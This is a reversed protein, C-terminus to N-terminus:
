GRMFISDTECMERSLSLTIALTKPAHPTRTAPQTQHARFSKAFQMQQSHPDSFSSKLLLRSLGAHQKSREALSPCLCLCVADPGKQSFKISLSGVGARPGGERARPFHASLGEKGMYYVPRFAAGSVSIDM